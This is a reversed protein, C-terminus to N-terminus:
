KPFPPMLRLRRFKSIPGSSRLFDSSWDPPGLVLKSTNPSSTLKWYKWFDHFDVKGMDILGSGTFSRPPLKTHETREELVGGSRGIAVQFVTEESKVTNETKGTKVNNKM